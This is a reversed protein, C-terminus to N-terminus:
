EWPYLIPRLGGSDTTFFEAPDTKFTYRESSAFEKLSIKGERLWSIITEMARTSCGSTGITKASRYHNQDIDAGDVTSHVGGFCAGVAYGVPNYLRLMLRQADPDSCAVVVDDFLMGNTKKKLKELLSDEIKIKEELSKDGYPPNIIIIIDNGLIDQVIRAKEESRVIMYIQSAGEIRCLLGYIM